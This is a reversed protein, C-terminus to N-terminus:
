YEQLYFSNWLRSKETIAKSLENNMLPAQNGWVTKTKLPAHKELTNYLINTLKILIQNLDDCLKNKDFNKYSRYKVVKPPLKILISKFITAVLNHYDSLGTKYVFTKQFVEQSTLSCCM